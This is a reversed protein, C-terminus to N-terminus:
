RKGELLQSAAALKQEDVQIDPTAQRRRLTVYWAGAGIGLFLVPGMWLLYTAPKFPPRYLVVDGYRTTLYDIVQADSKGAKMQNRIEQRLGEALKANSGALSENQCVLCRLDEALMVMRAEIAPDEALPLAKKPTNAPDDALASMVCGLLITPLLHTIRRSTM